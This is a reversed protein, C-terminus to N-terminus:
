RAELSRLLDKAGDNLEYPFSKHKLLKKLKEAIIRKKGNLKAQNQKPDVSLDVLAEYEEQLKVYEKVKAKVEASIKYGAILKKYFAADAPPIKKESLRRLVALYALLSKIEHTGPNAYYERDEASLEFSLATKCWEYAAVPNEEWLTEISTRRWASLNEKLVEELKTVDSLTNNTTSWVVKGGPLVVAVSRHMDRFNAEAPAAGSYVANTVAFKQVHSLVSSKSHRQAPYYSHIFEIDRDNFSSRLCEFAPVSGSIGPCGYCWRLVVVIRENLFEPTLRKNAIHGEADVNVWGLREVRNSGTVYEDSSAHVPFATGCVALQCLLAFYIRKM